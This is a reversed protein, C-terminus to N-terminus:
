TAGDRSATDVAHLVANRSWRRVRGTDPLPRVGRGALWTAARRPDMRLLAAVGATTLVPATTDAPRRTM